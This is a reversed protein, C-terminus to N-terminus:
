EKKEILEGRNRTKKKRKKRKETGKLGQYELPKVKIKM